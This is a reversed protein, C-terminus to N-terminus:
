KLKVDVQRRELTSGEQQALNALAKNYEALAQIEDSRATTLKIQLQLVTFTTSKGAAYKGQEAELAVEAYVRAQRTAGVSEWASRAQSVANDIQLMINQELKKLTLLIQQQQAKTTKYSNRARVNSLPISFQAGISYFPANGQDIQGFADSFERGQGNFGYSGTLDLQPFLQNFSYKLQLGQQEVDLKAQIMDPRQALGKTWSDQLDLLQKVAEMPTTPIIEVEQWHAYNDTLLIKLANQAGVYKFEATILSARSTAVQAEDQEITGGREALVKLEVRQKDDSLQKQALDLAQQQVKVNERAYILEYYANEVATVTTIIQNRLSQETYKLRNKAVSVSLRNGDTWFNKLLPQTLSVGIDGSTSGPNGSSATDAISGSFNYQLGLPLVGGIGSNFSDSQTVRAPIPNTSYQNFGGGPSANYGHRGSLSFAPDYGGYAAYLDYLSIQPAFREIQLDLNHALAESFCDQLTLKRAATNTQAVASLVVTALIAFACIRKM